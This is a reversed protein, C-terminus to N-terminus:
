PDLLHMPGFLAHAKPDTIFSLNYPHPLIHRTFGEASEFRNIEEAMKGFLILEVNKGALSYLLNDVFGRWARIHKKSEEKSSFVLAMNLLLVGNKEFNQRLADITRIYGETDVKAVAAASLDEQLVGECLLLMKIFNRLSTARNVEKSLGNQSFISKVKGDIFAYGTASEQRPYPDQGFLIYRTRDLPLTKFANLMNEKDPFYNRDKRLYDLYHPEFAEFAEKLLPQWTTDATTIM